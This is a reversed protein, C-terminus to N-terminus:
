CELCCRYFSDNLVPRISFTILGVLGIIKGFGVGLFGLILGFHDFIHRLCFNRDSLISLMM